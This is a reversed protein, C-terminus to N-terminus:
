VSTGGPNFISIREAQRRRREIHWRPILINNLIDLQDHVTMSFFHRRVDDEMNAIIDNM